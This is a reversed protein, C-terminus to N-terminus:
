ILVIKAVYKISQMLTEKHENAILTILESVQLIRYAYTVNYIKVMVYDSTTYYMYICTYFSRVLTCKIM